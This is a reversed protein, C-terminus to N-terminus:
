LHVALWTTGAARREITHPVHAPLMLWDGATLEYITGGVDLTASGSLVVVWEDHDQLFSDPADSAGSLIHEVIVRDQDVLLDFREGDDPAETADALRGHPVETM